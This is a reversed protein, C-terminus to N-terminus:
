KSSNFSSNLNTLSYKNNSYISKDIYYYKNQELLKNYSNELKDEDQFYLANTKIFTSVEYKKFKDIYEKKNLIDVKAEELLEKAENKFNIYNEKIYIM